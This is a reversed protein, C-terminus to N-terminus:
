LSSKETDGSCLSPMTPENTLEDSAVPCGAKEADATHDSDSTTQGHQQNSDTTGATDKTVPAKTVSRDETVPEGADRGEEGEGEGESDSDKHSADETCMPQPVEPFELRPAFPRMKRAQNMNYCYCCRFSLYEFEEPLAMGNHSNCNKCILAFRNQPGDGVIFDIFKDMAGQERPLVTRPMPPGPPLTYRYPTAITSTPTTARIPAFNRGQVHPIASGSAPTPARPNMERPSAPQVMMRQRVYTGPTGKASAPTVTAELKKFRTPDFKELIERAKKYTEKEMVDELILKKKERLENVALDNSTLRKVFYWHMLKRAVWVLLPFILLPLSYLARDQWSEPLYFFYFLPLALIYVLISYLLLSAVVRKQLEQNQRRCKQLYTIDKEIAELIEVTSKKERFRSTIIGM